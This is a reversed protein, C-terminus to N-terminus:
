HPPPSWARLLTVLEERQRRSIGGVTKRPSITAQQLLPLARTQGMYPRAIMLDLVKMSALFPPPDQLLDAVDAQGAKIQKKLAARAFRIENARALAEKREEPSRGPAQPKETVNGLYRV